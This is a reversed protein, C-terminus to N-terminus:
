SKPTSAVDGPKKEPQEVPQVTTPAVKSKEDPKNPSPADQASSYKTESM